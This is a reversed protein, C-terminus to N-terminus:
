RPSPTAALQCPEAAEQALLLLIGPTSREADLWDLVATCEPTRGSAASSVAGAGFSPNAPDAAGLAMPAQVVPAALTGSTNPKDAACAAGAAGLTLLSVFILTRAM